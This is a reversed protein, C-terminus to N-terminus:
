FLYKYQYFKLFVFVFTLLTTALLVGRGTREYENKKLYKRYFLLNFFISILFVSADTLYNQNYAQVLVPNTWLSIYYNIERLILFMVGPAVLGLLLGFWVLNKDFFEKM